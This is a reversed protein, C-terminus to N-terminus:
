PSDNIQKSRKKICWIGFTGILFFGAAILLYTLNMDAASKGLIIFPIGLSLQVIINMTVCYRFKVGALPLLYNKVAYPIGPVVLFALSYIAEHKEPVDPLDYGMKETLFIMMQKRLANALYYAITAHVPLILAWIVIARFLGFKIGAVVLFISMPFGAVPLLLMLSIFLLPPTNKDVLTVIQEFYENQLAWYIGAITLCLLAAAIIGTM